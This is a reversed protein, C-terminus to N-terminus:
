IFAAILFLGLVACIAGYIIRKKTYWDSYSTFHSAFSRNHAYIAPQKKLTKDIIDIHWGAAVLEDRIQEDSKGAQRAETIYPAVGQKSM